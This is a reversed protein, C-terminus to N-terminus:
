GAFGQSRILTFFESKLSRDQRLTGRVVSNVMSTDSEKVGRWSVCMHRAEIVLGLGKPEVLREIEDAIMVAAEEQIHPRSMIWDVLRNFKSIGIVREAPHIGVWARGLIPVLHHSCASRVTIPGLTFLEDLNSANPFDTVKPPPEYRGRFVEQLYMKAVRRATERTNHDNDTDIVLSALLDQVRAEVEALLAQREEETEIVTHITDNAFFRQGSQELRQRLIESILPPESSAQDPQATGAPRTTVTMLPTGSPDAPGPHATFYDLARRRSLTQGM